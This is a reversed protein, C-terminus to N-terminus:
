YVERLAQYALTSGMLIYKEPTSTKYSRRFFPREKLFTRADNGKRSRRGRESPRILSGSEAEEETGEPSEESFSSISVSSATKRLM